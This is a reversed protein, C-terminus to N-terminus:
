PPATGTLKVLTGVTLPQRANGFVVQQGAVVGELVEIQHGDQIGTKVPQMRLRGDVIVRVVDAGDQETVADLPVRLAAPKSASLIRATFQQNLRAAPVDAPMPARAVLYYSSGDKQM